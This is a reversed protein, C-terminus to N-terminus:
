RRNCALEQRWARMAVAAAQSGPETALYRDVAAFQHWEEIAEGEDDFRAEKTSQCKKKHGITRAMVRFGDKATKKFRGAISQTVAPQDSQVALPIGKAARQQMTKLRAETMPSPIPKADTSSM